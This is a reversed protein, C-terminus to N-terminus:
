RKGEPREQKEPEVGRRHEHALNARVRRAQASRQKYQEPDEQEEEARSRDSGRRPMDLVGRVTETLVMSLEVASDLQHESLDKATDQRITDSLGNLLAAMERAADAVTHEDGAKEAATWRGLESTFENLYNNHGGAIPVEAVDTVAYTLYNRLDADSDRLQLDTPLDGAQQYIREAADALAFKARTLNPSDKFNVARHELAVATEMAIQRGELAFRQLGEALLKKFDNVRQQAAALDRPRTTTVDKLYTDSTDDTTDRLELLANGLAGLADILPEAAEELDADSDPSFASSLHRRVANLANTIDAEDFRGRLRRALVTLNPDIYMEDLIKLAAKVAVGIRLRLEAELAAEGRDGVVLPDFLAFGFLAVGRTYVSRAPATVIFEGILSRM